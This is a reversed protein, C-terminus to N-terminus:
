FQIKDTRKDSKARKRTSRLREWFAPKSLLSSRHAWSQYVYSSCTYSGNNHSAYIYAPYVYMILTSAASTCSGNYANLYPVEKM